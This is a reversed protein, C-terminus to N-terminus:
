RGLAADPAAAASKPQAHGLLGPLVGGGARPRLRGWVAYRMAVSPLVGQLLAHATGTFGPQQEVEIQKKEV